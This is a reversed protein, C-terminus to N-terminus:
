RCSWARDEIYKRVRTIYQPTREKLFEPYLELGECELQTSIDIWEFLDM